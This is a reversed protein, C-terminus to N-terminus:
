FSPPSYIATPFTPAATEDVSLKYPPTQALIDIYRYATRSSFGFKECLATATLKREKLIQFFIDVLISLKM